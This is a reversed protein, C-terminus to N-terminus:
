LQEEPLIVRGFRGFVEAFRAPDQGVYFFATGQKSQGDSSGDARIFSLRERAFCVPLRDWLVEFWEYGVAAKVLMVGESVNGAEYEAILKQAWQGQSSDNGIKGYPPNMWVRGAWVQSLGDDAETYFNTAKISRQATECTAPDLDIGGMLERAAETYQPPTYYENSESSFITVAVDQRANTTEYFKKAAEIVDKRSTAEGAMIRPIIEPEAQALTEVAAAFAGDRKITPASVGFERALADATREIPDNQDRQISRNNNGIPAGPAKKQMNYLRGRLLSAADPHLNRRGLQNTIIWAVAADRDVLSVEVTRYSIGYQECIRKRNHGDLLVGTERWVVLADRCGEALLSEELTAYEEPTLPPCLAAFEPDVRTETM